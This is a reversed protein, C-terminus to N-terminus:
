SQTNHAKFSTYAEEVRQAILRPSENFGEINIEVCLKTRDDKSAGSRPAVLATAVTFSATVTLSKKASDFHIDEVVNYSIIHRPVKKSFSYIFGDPMLVLMRHAKKGIWCGAFIGLLSGMVVMLYLYPPPQDYSFAVADFLRIYVVAGLFGLLGGLVAGGIIGAIFAGISWGRTSQLIHWTSPVNNRQIREWVATPGLKLSDSEESEKAQGPKQEEAEMVQGSSTLSNSSRQEISSPPDSSHLPASPTDQERTLHRVITREDMGACAAAFAQAFTIMSPYRQAPQKAFSKLLVADMATSIQENCQSPPPPSEHLHAYMVRHVSGQFPLGGTLLEYTMIALAYQDSAPVARGAWQEPPMYAPTGIVKSTTTTAEELRAIGFDALLLDPFEDASGQSRILFNTPKVDRHIIRPQHEHAYQLASAAQEVLHSVQAFTLQSTQSDQARKRLWTLLSGEARYPMVLYALLAGKIRKQGCDYLPLIHAHDLGGIAAVERQFLRLNNEVAQQNLAAEELRVMKIAVQRSASTDEALYVEGMAGSGILRILRYHSFEEGDLAM